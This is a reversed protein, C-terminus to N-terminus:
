KSGSSIKAEEVVYAEHLRQVHSFAMMEARVDVELKDFEDPTRGWDKATDLQMYRWSFKPHKKGKQQPFPYDKLRDPLLQEFITGM